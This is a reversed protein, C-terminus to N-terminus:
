RLIGGLSTIVVSDSREPRSVTITTSGNQLGLGRPDYRLTDATSAVRVSYVANLDRRDIVTAAGTVPHRSLIRITNGSVVLMTIRSQQVAIARAKANMTTIAVRAGAIRRSEMGRRVLPISITALTGIIVVVILLEILSFGRRNM